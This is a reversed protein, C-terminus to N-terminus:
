GMGQQHYCLTHSEEYKGTEFSVVNDKLRFKVEVPREVMACRSIGRTFSAPISETINGLNNKLQLLGAGDLSINGAGKYEM